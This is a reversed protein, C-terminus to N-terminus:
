RVNRLPQATESGKFGFASVKRLLERNTPLAAGITKIREANERILQEARAELEAHNRPRTTRSMTEFHMGYLIYQYSASPFLDDPEFNNHWPSQYRWFELAEVLSAPLSASARNDQWYTEQRDSLVYHLKLFEIIRGWRKLMKQNFRRASLAMAARDYPMQEAIMAASLEVLALASAELPEIFGSAMGVAVCNRHWFEVRHGPQFSLKRYDLDDASALHPENALYRRLLRAAEEESQHASSYVYGVGRRSSLGIDWIWGAAQATSLTCSNIPSEPERYPVQMALASDNFLISDAAAFPVGFHEALLLSRTGSCDIFLDGEIRGASDTVLGAIDGREDSEISTVCHSQLLDAFRGADLHYGYNLVFAYEPTTSQKPALYNEVLQGQPSVVDAFRQEGHRAQWHPALNMLNYGHPVTFPHVYNEGDRYWHRFLTGQKLSVNCHQVFENESIGVKQLTSRMSPWTGEGVGITPVDPSEVLTVSFGEDAAGPGTETSHEAAIVAASLWGATGGGVIVIRRTRKTM